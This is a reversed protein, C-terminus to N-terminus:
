FLSLYHKIICSSESKTLQLNKSRNDNQDKLYISILDIRWGLNEKILESNQNAFGGCIKKLKTLKAKTLNDEPKLAAVNGSEIKNLNRSNGYKLTKVEIFVLTGQNDKAIIDIEGWPKRYNRTIIKYGNEKLFLCALDEGIKGTNEPM